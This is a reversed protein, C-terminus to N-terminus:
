DTAPSVSGTLVKEPKIAKALAVWIQALSITLGKLVVQKRETIHM